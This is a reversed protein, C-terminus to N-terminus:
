ASKQNIRTLTIGAGFGVLSVLLVGLALTVVPSFGLEMSLDCIAATIFCGGGGGGAPAPAPAPATVTGAGSPDIITANALGDADGFGGDQLELTVSRRDASFAAYPYEQWGNVPDYKYWKADTAAPKSLYVTVEAIDGPNDVTLKFSILGLLMEDPKNKTDAITAPDISKISDVSTVNTGQKVAVQGDGVVTNVCKMDGQTMDPTGDEDLDVDPDTIEQEDPV